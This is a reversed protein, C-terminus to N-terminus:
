FIPFFGDLKAQVEVRLFLAVLHLLRGGDLSSGCM